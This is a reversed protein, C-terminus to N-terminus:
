KHKFSEKLILLLKKKRKYVNTKFRTTEDAAVNTHAINVLHYYQGLVFVVYFSM